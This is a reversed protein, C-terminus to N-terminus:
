TKSLDYHGIPPPVPVKIKVKGERLWPSVLFAVGNREWALIKSDIPSIGLSQSIESSIRFIFKTNSLQVIIENLDSPNHTAFIFGIKRRRGLRMMTSIKGAVRRVYTTDEENGKGSPFFRHAEDIIILYRGKINGHRMENERYTFLRDLFYYTLIKQSFDDLESNYIDLVIIPSGNSKISNYFTDREAKLDFLGTEKLLYLGRLINERTSKHIKFKDFKTDDLIDLFEELTNVEKAEKTSSFIKLFHSAQETFYPNLKYLIKRVNRYKFFFPHLIVKSNWESNSLIIQNDVTSSYLKIGKSDLFNLLPRVYLENYAYTISSAKGSKAYKRIWSKTVPFILNIEMKNLKGYLKEFQTIGYRVQKDSFNPPLFIHYYDGTADLIFVKTSDENIMYIGSILDKIFSTKGAGTTGVILSHYNLDDLSLSVKAEEDIDLFGVKLLGRNLSLAREILDSNPIIVPSQPEIIIDAPSPESSSLIDTKTLMECKLTVNNILTGPNEEDVNSVFNKEEFLYSKVDSREYGMVRLLIFYLTKIDIVGLFIGIKGLFPYKYYTYPDVTVNVIYENEKIENQTNPSVKGIINGLTIALAKAKEVREKIQNFLEDSAM